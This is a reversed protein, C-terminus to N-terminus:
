RLPYATLNEVDMDDHPIIAKDSPVLHHLFKDRDAGIELIDDMTDFVSHQFYTKWPRGSLKLTDFLFRVMRRNYEDHQTLGCGGEAMYEAEDVCLQKWDWAYIERLSQFRDMEDKFLDASEIFFALRQIKAIVPCNRFMTRFIKAVEQYTKKGVWMVTGVHLNIIVNPMFLPLAEERIRRNVLMLAVKSRGVRLRELEDDLQSRLPKRDDVSWDHGPPGPQPDKLARITIITNAFIYFYIKVTIEPPLDLFGAGM